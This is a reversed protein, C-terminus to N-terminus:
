TAGKLFIPQMLTNKNVGQDCDDTQEIHGVIENVFKIRVELAM